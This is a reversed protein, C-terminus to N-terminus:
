TSNLASLFLAATQQNRAESVGLRECQAACTRWDQLRIAACLKPFENILGTLGLNFVMDAIARQAHDPYSDFNEGFEDRLAELVGEIDDSLITAMSADSLRGQTVRAYFAAVRGAPLSMLMEWEAPTIPPEFPLAQCAAYSSVLHGSACTANGSIASDRYLHPITGEDAQIDSTLAALSEPTM